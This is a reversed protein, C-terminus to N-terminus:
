PALALLALLVGTPVALAFAIRSLSRRIRAAAPRVAPRIWHSPVLRLVPWERRLWGVILDEVRRDIGAGVGSRM